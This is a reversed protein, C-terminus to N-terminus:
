GAHNISKHFLELSMPCNKPVNKLIVTQTLIVHCIIFETRRIKDIFIGQGGFGVKEMYLIFLSIKM